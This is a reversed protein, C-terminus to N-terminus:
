VAKKPQQTSKPQQTLRQSAKSPAPDSGRASTLNHAAHRPKRALLSLGKVVQSPRWRLARGIQFPPIPWTGDSLKNRITKVPINLERSLENIDILRRM